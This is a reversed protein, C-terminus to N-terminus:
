GRRQRLEPLWQASRSRAATARLDPVDRALGARSVFSRLGSDGRELEQLHPRLRSNLGRLGYDLNRASVRRARGAGPHAGDPFTPRPYAARGGPLYRDSVWDRVADRVMREEETLLADIGFFDPAEYARWPADGATRLPLTGRRMRGDDHDRVPAVASAAAARYSCLTRLGPAPRRRREGLLDKQVFRLVTTGIRITDGDSLRERQVRRGNLLTGNTSGSTRRTGCAAEPVLRVHQRSALRDELVFTAAPDRGVVGPAGGLRPRARGGARGQHRTQAHGRGGPGGGSGPYGVGVMVQVSTVTRSTCCSVGQSRM